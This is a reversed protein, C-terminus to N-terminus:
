KQNAPSRLCQFLYHTQSYSRQNEDTSIKRFSRKRGKHKENAVKGRTIVRAPFSTQVFGPNSLQEQQLTQQILRAQWKILMARMKNRQFVM